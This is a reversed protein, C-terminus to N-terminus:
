WDSNIKIAKITFRPTAVSKVANDFKGVNAGRVTGTMKSVTKMVQQVHALMLLGVKREARRKHKYLEISHYSESDETDVIQYIEM